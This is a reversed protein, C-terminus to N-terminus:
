GGVSWWWGIVLRGTGFTWWHATHDAAEPEAGSEGREGPTEAVPPARPPPRRGLHRPPRPALSPAPDSMISLDLSWHRPAPRVERRPYLTIHRLGVVVQELQQQDPVRPYPLGTDQEAEGLVGEVGREDRGYTAPGQAAPSRAPRAGTPSPQPISEPDPLTAPGSLSGCRSGGGLLSGPGLSQRSAPSWPASLSM